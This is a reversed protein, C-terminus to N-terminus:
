KDVVDALRESYRKFVLSGNTGGFGFSNSLAYEIAMPRAHNPIYDLSALARHVADQKDSAVLDPNNLVRSVTTISVGAARAVDKVTAKGHTRITDM